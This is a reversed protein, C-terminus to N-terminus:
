KSLLKIKQNVEKAWNEQEEEHSQHYEKMLKENKLEEFMEYPIYNELEDGWIIYLFELFNNNYKEDTPLLNITSLDTPLNHMIELENELTINPKNKPKEENKNKFIIERHKM